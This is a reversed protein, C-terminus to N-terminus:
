RPNVWLRSDLVRGLSSTKPRQTFDEPTDMGAGLGLSSKHLFDQLGLSADERTLKRMVLVAGRKYFIAGLNGRFGGFGWTRDIWSSGHICVWGGFVHPFFRDLVEVDPGPVMVVNVMNCDLCIGIGDVLIRQALVEGLVVITAHAEKAGDGHTCALKWSAEAYQHPCARMRPEM